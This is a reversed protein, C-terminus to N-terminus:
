QMPLWFYFENQGNENIRYGLDGGLLRITKRNAYLGIGSGDQDENEQQFKGFLRNRVFDEDLLKGSDSVCFYVKSDEMYSDIVVTGGYELYKVENDVFNDFISSIWDKNTRILIDQNEIKNVVKINREKIKESYAYLIPGLISQQINTRVKRILFNNEGPSIMALQTLSSMVKLQAFTNTKHVLKVRNFIEDNMTGYKGEIIRSLFGTASIIPEKIGHSENLVLDTLAQEYEMMKTVDMAFGMLGLFKREENYRSDIDMTLYSENGDSDALKKLKGRISKGTNKIHALWNQDGEKEPFCEFISKGIMSEMDTNLYNAMAQSVKTFCLQEDTFFVLVSLHGMLDNFMRNEEMEYGKGTHIKYKITLTRLSYQSM